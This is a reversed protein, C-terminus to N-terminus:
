VIRGNAYSFFYVKAGNFPFRPLMREPRYSESQELFTLLKKRNAELESGDNFHSRRDSESSIVSNSRSRGSRQDHKGLTKWEKSSVIRDLYILILKHHFEQTQDRCRDILYELYQTALDSSIKELHSLVRDRPLSETHGTYDDDDTNM